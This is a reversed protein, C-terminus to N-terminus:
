CTHTHTHTYLGEGESLLPSESLFESSSLKLCSCLGLEMVPYSIMIRWRERASDDRFEDGSRTKIETEDWCIGPIRSGDACGFCLASM